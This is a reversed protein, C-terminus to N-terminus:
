FPIRGVGNGISLRFVGVRTDLRLGADLTMDIPISETLSRDRVQLERRSTLMIVGVDVFFDGGYFFKGGRFWPVIYEMSARVAFEEYRKTDIATGFIDRSPLTSFNLGLARSPVLDNFDGIFFKEFFPAEGFVVGGGLNLSIIHGWSMPFYHRYLAKLKFFDYGSGLLGLSLEGAVSMIYGRQPLVPDSRTDRQITLNLMSLVSIGNNIGFDIPQNDGQTGERVAGTPVDAQVFEGRYDIYMQTYRALDFGIGLVGGIRTYGIGVFDKPNSSSELGSRRFFDNGTLFNFSAHASLPGGALRTSSVGLTFAGQPNGPEVEPASGIVFAGNIAIGRGLFNNEAIGLGGWATTAESSGFFIDTLIITGREEVQVVLVVKGRASGKELRLRVESFYGLSLLRYRSIEFRPDDVALREGPQVLLARRIVHEKTKSNGSIRVQEIAYTPALKDARAPSAPLLWAAATLILWATLRSRTM